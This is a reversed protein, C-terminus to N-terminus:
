MGCTSYYSECGSSITILPYKILPIETSQSKIVRPVISSGNISPITHCISDPCVRMCVHMFQINSHVYAIDYAYLYTCVYQIYLCTAWLSLTSLNLVGDSSINGGKYASM